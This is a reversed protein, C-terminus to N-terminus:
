AKERTKAFREKKRKNLVSLPTIIRKFLSVKKRVPKIKQVVPIDDVYGILKEGGDLIQSNVQAMHYGAGNLATEAYGSFRKVKLM